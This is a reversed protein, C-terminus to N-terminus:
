GGRSGSAEPVGALRCDALATPTEVSHRGMPDRIVIGVSPLFSKTCRQALLGPGRMYEYYM